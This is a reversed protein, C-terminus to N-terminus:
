IRGAAYLLVAAATAVNLSEVRGGMPLTVREASPPADGGVEGPIWLAVPGSWDFTRPDSGGRTAAAVVRWGLTRLEAPDKCGYVPLRLLSGMSGRVAKDGFASAGGIRVLGTAGAAEAARAIAGLNGPDSVGAAVALLGRDHRPCEALPREAPARALALLGPGRELASLSQAIDPTVERCLIALAALSDPLPRGAAVLLVEITMGGGLADVILREGELLVMQDERGARAARVRAVLPNQRSHIPPPPDIM